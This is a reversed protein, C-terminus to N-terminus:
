NPSVFIALHMHAQTTSYLESHLPFKIYQINDNENICITHFLLSQNELVSLTNASPLAIIKKIKLVTEKFESYEIGYRYSHTCKSFSM